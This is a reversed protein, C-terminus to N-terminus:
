FMRRLRGVLGSYESAPPRQPPTARALLVTIDDNSGARRAAQGLRLACAGLDGGQRLLQAMHEPTLGRHLGDSCLLLAQGPALTM